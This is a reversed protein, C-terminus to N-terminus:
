WSASSESRDGTGQERDGTDNWEILVQRREAETLIPLDWLRSDPNAIIGELLTQLHGQMRAVTDADFLDAKYRLSGTLGQPLEGLSLALDFRATGNDVKLPRLTLGAQEIAPPSTNQNQLGFLVQVLPPYNLTRTPQLEEVVKEFPM